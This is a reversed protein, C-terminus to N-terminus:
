KEFLLYSLTIQKSDYEKCALFWQSCIPEKRLIHDRLSFIKKSKSERNEVSETVSIYLINSVAASNPLYFLKKILLPIFAASIHPAFM